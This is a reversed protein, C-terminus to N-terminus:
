PQLVTPCHDWLLNALPLLAIGYLAMALPHGQTVGEKSLLTLAEMGPRRYVLRNEHRYYNFSFRSLKTCCHRVMWLMVYRSLNNFGNAADVLLLVEENSPGATGMRAGPRQLGPMGDDKDNDDNVEEAGLEYGRKTTAAMTNETSAM